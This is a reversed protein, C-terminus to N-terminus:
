NIDPETSEIHGCEACKVAIWEIGRYEGSDHYEMVGDCDDMPCNEPLGYNKENFPANPDSSAGLPLNDM